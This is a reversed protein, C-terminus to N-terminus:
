VEEWHHITLYPKTPAASRPRDFLRPGSHWRAAAGTTQGSGRASPAAATTARSTPPAGPGGNRDEMRWGLESKM